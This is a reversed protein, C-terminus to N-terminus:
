MTAPIAALIYGGFTDYLPGWNCNEPNQIISGSADICRPYMMGPKHTWVGFQPEYRYFHYDEGYVWCIATYQPNNYYQSIETLSSFKWCQIGCRTLDACILDGINQFRDLNYGASSGPNRFMLVENDLLTFSNNNTITVGPFVWKMPMLAGLRIDLYDRLSYEYCNDAYQPLIYQVGNAGPLRCVTCTIRMDKSNHVASLIWNYEQGYRNIQSVMYNYLPLNNPYLLHKMQNLVANNDPMLSTQIIDRLEAESLSSVQGSRIDKLISGGFSVSM